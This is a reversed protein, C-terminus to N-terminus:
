FIKSGLPYVDAIAWAKVAQPLETGAPITLTTRNAETKTKAAYDLAVPEGSAADTLLLSVQHAGGLPRSLMAVAQGDSGATPRTLEVASLAVGKPRANARGVYRQTLYTGGVVIKGDQNCLRTTTPLFPGYNPISACTAEAYVNPGSTTLDTNMRGRFELRDLPVPGFSFTLTINRLGLMFADRRYQGFLPFGFRAAPDAVWTKKPGPKVGIVWALLSGRGTADPPGVDLVGALWEYSDFGIQNVSPLFAPLPAALRRLRFSPVAGKGARLPLPGRSAQTRFRITDSFPAGGTAGIVPAGVHFGGTTYLGNLKLDYDRGPDLIEDPRVFLFHGDGSLAASFPFAPSPTVLDHASPLPQIAADETKGGQHVVLRSVVTTAAPLPSAFGNPLTTGGETVPLVRELDGGFAQGPDTSCRADRAHLCWDYPVFWFRGSESGIYVGKRGLAPSANMDNRDRLAAERPTGDFSWRRKGTDGDLAFLTGNSSGVYVIRSKGDPALGLVPSSRVADGTDYQWVQKGNPDLKYVIGDTSGIYIGKVAGSSDEELAPSSYVHDGTQFVWKPAGTKADLAHLQGDFSGIFLTSGDKSLAPSSVIFGLTPTRWVQQGNKDLAYVFLDLSGWYTTGDDAIATSTWVSNGARFIWKVKGDPTIAYAASGTNGAYVTGDPGVEANGEWWNVLQSSGSPQVAKLKWITRKRQSMKKASTRLHYLYEDGTGVTIGDRRLVASSDILGAKFSWLRKGNAGFAHFVGDGSGVYVRDGPGVTATSFIGKGTRFSWPKRGQVYVGRIDSAGTNRRDHRMEPWPSGAPVPIDDSAFAAQASALALACAILGLARRM